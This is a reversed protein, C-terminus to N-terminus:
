ATALAIWKLVNASQLRKATERTRELLRALLALVVQLGKGDLSLVLRDAEATPSFLAVVEDYEPLAERVDKHRGLLHLLDPLKVRLAEAARADTSQIVLRLSEQPPSNIGIAAWCVGRTLVTSPGNGLNEPLQPMFEEIVRRAHAPPILVVQAATDGAAEFAAAM